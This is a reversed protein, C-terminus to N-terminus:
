RDEPWSTAVPKARSIASAELDIGDVGPKGVVTYPQGVTLIAIRQSAAATSDDIRVTAGGRRLLTLVTGDVSVLTGSVRLSSADPLSAAAPLSAATVRSAPASAAEPANPGFIMLSQYSAVYVKGNAVVPVVNANGGLNPWAGAPASYLQPLAGSVPTASFAYLMLGTSSSPRAVAWIIASGAREGRSSIVTFFGPDQVSSQVYSTAEATLHPTPSTQVQWTQLANGASTVLRSIGDSGQFYSTGCWCGASLQHMDLISPLNSSDLLWLRADKSVIAALSAGVRGSPMLMVGAAGLDADAIDMAFVNSPTFVGERASLNSNMSVVSEQINTVGDYTSQSPCAEPNVYFNCDSNGTSFYITGGTGALGFGSMWVSSLFFDTPSTAQTDNLEAHALPKLTQDNWGLVWGRSHSASFDCFSGFGAYIVGNMHLLGPRQRQYTADFTFSTGDTLTQSAAVTVPAVEDALTTLNLAHLQYTPPMGNVYSMVILRGRIPEIVPTSTIGVNPGNNGCGLPWPVPPGLNRELLVAGSDADIAYVTNGESVVYVVDHVGGAIHQAPMLLPQADVQDDIAVNQLVGFSSPFHSASLTQEEHNWGTRLTDYHHTLVPISEASLSGASAVGILAALLHSLTAPRM